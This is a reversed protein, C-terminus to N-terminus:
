SLTEEFKKCNKTILCFIRGQICLAATNNGWLICKRLFKILMCYGFIHINLLFDEFSSFVESVGCDPAGKIM